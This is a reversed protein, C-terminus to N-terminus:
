GAARRRRPARRAPRGAQGACATAQASVDALKKTALAAVKRQTECDVGAQARAAVAELLEARAAAGDIDDPVASLGQLEALRVRLQEIDDDGSLGALTATLQDRTSQLERRRQDVQRATALDAVEAAALVATLKEQAAAYHAQIDFASAGPTVRATVIGPIEIETTRDAVTVWSQGAPLSVRQDGIILDIDAAAVFEVTASVLALQSATREVASAAQEIQRLSDDTLIITSLESAVEDRESLAADIRTIRAALRQTEDRRAM